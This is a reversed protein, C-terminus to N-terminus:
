RASGRRLDGPTAGFRRRLSTTLHSQSAFGTQHAVEALPLRTSLLLDRARECRRRQVYAWVAEGIAARFARAFHGPSLAAVGALEAVSLAEGLHAEAHDVARAIRADEPAAAGLPSLAAAGTLCALLQLTLGDLWLSAGPGDREAARWIARMLRAAEPQATMAGMFPGLAAIGSGHRDLMAAARRGPLALVDARHEAPIRFRAETDPPVVTVTDDIPRRSVRPGDGLDILVEEGRAGSQITLDPLAPDILDIPEQDVRMITLGFSGGARLQRPFAAYAASGQYFAAHSDFRLGPAAHRPGAALCPADPGAQGAPAHESM